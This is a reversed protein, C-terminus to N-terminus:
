YFGVTMGILCFSLFLSIICLLSTLVVIESALDGDGDMHVATPYSNVANPGAAFLALAALATERLGCLIGLPIIVAPLVFQRAILFGVLQKKYKSFNSFEFTAGLAILSLPSAMASLKKLVDSYIVSPIEIGTFLIVLGILTGIILPNKFLNFVIKKVSPNNGRYYEFVLVALVNNIIVIFPVLVTIMGLDSGYISEGIQAGMIVFNCKYFGQVLVPIRTRDKETHSFILWSILFVVLISGLIFFISIGEIKKSFDADCVSTICFVPLLFKFVMKNLDSVTEEKFFHIRKLLYGIAMLLFVPLIARVSIEIIEM